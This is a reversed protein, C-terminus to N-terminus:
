FSVSGQALAVVAIDLPGKGSRLLKNGPVRM